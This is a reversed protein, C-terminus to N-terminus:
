AVGERPQVLLYGVDGVVEVPWVILQELEFVRLATAPDLLDPLDVAGSLV